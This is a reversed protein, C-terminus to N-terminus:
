FCLELKQAHIKLKEEKLLVFLQTLSIFCIFQFCFNFNVVM